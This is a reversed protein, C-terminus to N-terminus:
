ASRVKATESLWTPQITPLRPADAPKRPTMAPPHNPSRSRTFCGAPRSHTTMKPAIAGIGATAIANVLEIIKGDMADRAAYLDQTVETQGYVTVTRDTLKKFDIRFDHGRASIRTGDHVFGEADLREGVGARRLLDCMGSELVGARIRGLVYDRSRRELVVTDIGQLHLLQSLLLGSPGGGIICVQVRM